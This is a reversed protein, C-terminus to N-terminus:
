WQSWQAKEENGTPCIHIPEEEEPESVCNREEAKIQERRGKEQLSGKGISIKIQM